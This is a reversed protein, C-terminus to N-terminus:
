CGGHSNLMNIGQLNDDPTDGLIMTSPPSHKIRSRSMYARLRNPVLGSDLDISM